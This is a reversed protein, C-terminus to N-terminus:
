FHRVQTLVIQVYKIHSQFGHGNFNESKKLLDHCPLNTRRNKDAAAQFHVWIPPKFIRGFFPKQFCDNADIKATLPQKAYLVIL